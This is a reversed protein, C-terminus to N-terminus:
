NGGSSMIGNTVTTAFGCRNTFLCMREPVNIGRTQSAKINRGEVAQSIEGSRDYSSDKRKFYDYAVLCAVLLGTLISVAVLLSQLRANLKNVNSVPLDIEQSCLELRRSKNCIEHRAVEIQVVEGDPLNRIFRFEEDANSEAICNVADSFASSSYTDDNIEFVYQPNHSPETFEPSLFVHAFNVEMVRSREFWTVALYTADRGRFDWKLAKFCRILFIRDRKAVVGEYESEGINFNPLPRLATRCADLEEYSILASDYKWSLGQEASYIALPLKM